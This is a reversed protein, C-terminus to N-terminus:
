WIQVVRGGVTSVTEHIGLHHDAWNSDACQLPFPKSTVIMVPESITNSKKLSLLSSQPCVKNMQRLFPSMLTVFTPNCLHDFGNSLKADQQM